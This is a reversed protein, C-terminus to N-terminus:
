ANTQEKQAEYHDVGKQAAKMFAEYSVRNEIYLRTATATVKGHEACEAWILGLVQKRSLKHM